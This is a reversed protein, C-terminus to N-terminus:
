RRESRRIPWAMSALLGIVIWLIPKEYVEYFLNAFFIQSSVLLGTLNQRQEGQGLLYRFFFALPLAAIIWYSLLLGVVGREVLITLPSMHARLAEGVVQFGGVGVGILQQLLTGDSWAVLATIRIGIHGATTRGDLVDILRNFSKLLGVDVFTVLGIITIVVGVMLWRMRYIIWALDQRRYFVVGFALVILAAIISYIGTRSITAVSLGIMLAALVSLKARGQMLFLLGLAGTITALTQPTSFPLSIRPAGATVSQIHEIGSPPAIPLPILERLPLDTIPQHLIYLQYISWISYILYALSVFILSNFVKSAAAEDHGAYLHVVLYLLYCYIVSPTYVIAHALNARPAILSLPITILCGIFVLWPFLFTRGKALLEIIVLALVPLLALRDLNLNIGGFELRYPALPSVVIMLVIFAGVLKRYPDNRVTASVWDAATDHPM